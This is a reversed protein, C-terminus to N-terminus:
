RSDLMAIIPPYKFKTPLPRWILLLSHDLLLHASADDRPTLICLRSTSPHIGLLGNTFFIVILDDRSSPLYSLCGPHASDNQATHIRTLPPATQGPFNPSRHAHDQHGAFLLSASPDAAAHLRALRFSSYRNNRGIKGIFLMVTYKYGQISHM